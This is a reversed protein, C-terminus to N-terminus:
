SFSAHGAMERAEAEEDHDEGGDAQVVDVGGRDILEAIPARDGDVGEWPLLEDGDTEIRLHRRHGFGAKGVESDDVASPLLHRPDETPRADHLHPAYPPRKRNLL